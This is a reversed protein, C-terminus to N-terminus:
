LRNGPHASPSPTVPYRRLTEWGGSVSRPFPWISRVAANPVTAKQKAWSTCRHHSIAAPVAHVCMRQESQNFALHAAGPYRAEPSTARLRAETARPQSYLFFGRGGGGGGFGKFWAAMLGPQAGPCCCLHAMQSRKQLLSFALSRHLLIPDLSHNQSPNKDCKGQAMAATCQHM